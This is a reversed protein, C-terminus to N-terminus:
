YESPEGPVEANFTVTHMHADTTTSDVRVPRGDRIQAVAQAPVAVVHNHGASGEISLSLAGGAQLEAATIAATHGHNSSVQGSKSGAPLTTTTTTSSGGTPGYDDGGGGGGGGGCASVTVTVGALFALSAEQTFQRRDLKRM